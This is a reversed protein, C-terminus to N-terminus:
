VLLSCGSVSLAGQPLGKLFRIPESTERVQKTTAMVRTNWSKSLKEVSRFLWAPFRYLIIMKELLGHGVLDYVKKVDIM